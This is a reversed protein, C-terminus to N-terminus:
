CLWDMREQISCAYKQAQNVDTQLNWTVTERLASIAIAQQQNCNGTWKQQVTREFREDAEGSIGSIVRIQYCPELVQFQSIVLYTVLTQSWNSKSM